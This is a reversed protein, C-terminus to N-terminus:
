SSTALHLHLQSSPVMLLYLLVKAERSQHRLHRLQVALAAAMFLETAAQLHLVQSTVLVVVAVALVQLGVLPQQGIHEQLAQVVMLFHQLALVVAAVAAVTQRLRLPTQQTQVLLVVVVPKDV